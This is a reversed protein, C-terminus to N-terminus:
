PQWCSSDFEVDDPALERPLIQLVVLDGDGLDRQQEPEGILAAEM